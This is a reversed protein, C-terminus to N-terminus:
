YPRGEMYRSFWVQFVILNWIQWSTDSRNSMLTDILKKVTPYHFIGERVIRAQSLNEEILYRLDSKLWSSIPMEFGRKPRNHLSQPLIEKFTEIFVYKSRGHRIKWEGGIKFALECVRHDLLPVRVELSHCMSMTDVKFLMDAPLSIKLDAYLMRNIPDTRLRNLAVAFLEEAQPHDTGYISTLLAKKSESNFLENWSFVREAFNDKAGRLFKKIRRINEGHKNDRSDPLSRIVPELFGARIFRPILRYRRHWTEGRYIRYGAFLEDGGDGSLAVAVDRATERAVVYTPVASSDGFPEDLSALVSPITDIIERSSLMIENHETKHFAAVERAYASEDYMPMDKFGIAYSKVPRSANRSMMGVIVSSDIGGSLFAGIPVDAVMQSRVADEVTRFLTAKTEEFNSSEPTGAPMGQPIDWFRENKLVGDCVTLIHGPSLKRINRFITHPAPIYNLSLYLDLAEPDIEKRVAPDSFLSKIESAFLFIKGDWYYVLPKIGVHDRALLLTRSKESWLAMAFMGVLRSVGSSGEEEFLHLIVESDTRSTFRHGKRELEERLVAFNYIEGNFVMWVTKDENSMPQRGAETLDIISLRRHGLGCGVNEKHRLYVGSDDPGRHSLIDTMRRLINEDVPLGTCDLKGCIGCM